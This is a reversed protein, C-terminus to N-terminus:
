IKFKRQEGQVCRKVLTYPTLVSYAVSSIPFLETIGQVIALIITQLITM